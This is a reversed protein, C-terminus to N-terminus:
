EDQRHKSNQSQNVKTVRKSSNDEHPCDYVFAHGDQTVVACNNVTEARAVGGGVVGAVVLLSGILVRKIFSKRSTEVAEKFLPLIHAVAKMWSEHTTMDHTTGYQGVGLKVINSIVRHSNPATVTWYGPKVLKANRQVETISIITM